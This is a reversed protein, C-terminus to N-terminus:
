VNLFQIGEYILFLAIVVLVYGLVHILRNIHSVKFKKRYKILLNTLLVFWLYGGIAVGLAYVFSLIFDSATKEGQVTTELAKTGEELIEMNQSLLMDLGGINLGISSAFSLLVFSSSLWGFLLTANTLNLFMGARLGGKNKIKCNLDENEDFQEFDLKTKIIKYAVGLIFVSGVLLIYPVYDKYYNYLKAMGYVVILVYFLEIISAGLAARTCFRKRGKLANSTVVVGIPGAVPMSFVFGALLGLIGLTFISEIM